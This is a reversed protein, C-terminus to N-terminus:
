EVIPVWSCQEKAGEGKSASRAVQATRAFQREGNAFNVDLFEWRV